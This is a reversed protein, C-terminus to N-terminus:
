DARKVGIHRGPDMREHLVRVIEVLNPAIVRYHLVHVPHRVKVDSYARAYRTHFSRIGKSLESRDQTTLGIPDTAVKCLAAAIMAEYRSKAENGRQQESKVLIDALDSQARRSLRFRAM